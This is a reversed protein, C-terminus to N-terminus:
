EIHEKTPWLSGSGCAYPCNLIFDLAGKADRRAACHPLFLSAIFEAGSFCFARRSSASAQERAGDHVREGLFRREFRHRNVARVPFNGDGREAFDRLAPHFFQRLTDRCFELREVASALRAQENSAPFSSQATKRGAM